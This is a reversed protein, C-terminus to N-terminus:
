TLLADPCMQRGKGSRWEERDELQVAVGEGYRCNGM